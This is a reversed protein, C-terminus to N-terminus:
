VISNLANAADNRYCIYLHIGPVFVRKLMHCVFVRYEERFMLELNTGMQGNVWETIDPFGFDMVMKLFVEDQLEETQRLMFTSLSEWPKIDKLVKASLYPFGYAVMSGSIVILVQNTTTSCWQNLLKSYTFHIKEGLLENLFDLHFGYVASSKSKFHTKTTFYTAMEADDRSLLSVLYRGSKREVAYPVGISFLENTRTESGFAKDLAPIPSGTLIEIYM